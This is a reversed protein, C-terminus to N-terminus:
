SEGELDAPRAVSLVLDRVGLVVVREGAQVAEPAEANWYEGHIFVRGTPDLDSDAVAFEGLMGEQGAAQPQSMSRSLGFVIIAGFVAFGLVAPLIVSFFPV